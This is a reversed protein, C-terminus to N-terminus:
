FTRCPIAMKSGTIKRFIGRYSVTFELAGFGGLGILKDKNNTATVGTHTVDYSLAATWRDKEFKVAPIIADNIRYFLGPSIQLKGPKFSVWSGLVVEQAPGQKNFYLSPAISLRDSFKNSVEVGVTFRKKQTSNGLDPLTSFSEQLSNLGIFSGNVQMKLLESAQFYYAAGMSLQFFTQKKNGYVEGSTLNGDFAREIPDFQNNYTFAGPNLQRMQMSGQLGVSFQHRKIADLTKFVSLGGSIYTTRLAGNGMDDQVVGLMTGIKDLNMPVKFFNLEANLNVVQYPNGSAYWQNRYGGSVRVDERFSGIRAPNTIQRLQSSQSFTFDQAYTAHGCLILILGFFLAFSKTRAEISLLTRFKM